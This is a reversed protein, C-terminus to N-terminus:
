GSFVHDVIMAQQEPSIRSERFLALVRPIAEEDPIGVQQWLGLCNHLALRLQPHMEGTRRVCGLFILAQREMLPQAESGRGLALLLAALNSLCIAVNPDGPGLCVELIAVSRRLPAEAEALRGAAQLTAGLNNLDRAVESHMPGLRAEHIQLARLYCREAEDM